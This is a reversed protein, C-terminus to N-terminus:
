PAQRGASPLPYYGDKAYVKVGPRNVRVEINRYTSSPVPRTAYGLTYQNRADETIRSYAEEIAQQSLETFVEGGTASAYKPLIDGYGLGPIHLKQLTGYGPIAAGGVAVAYVAIENSLLVKMVDEYSAFSGSERGESIVFIVKRRARDRKALSQGAALLADNLVRSEEKSPPANVVPQQGPDAAKGNITPVPTHMPGSTVPVGGARGKERRLRRLTKTLQESFAATFNQAEHVTNDYTFIAVEDFQAFAGGLSSLTKNIKQVTGDSMGLDIVVAASLPFPDSTFLKLEQPAGNELVTFDKPLLGEVLRGSEDKVTVPVLVFNVNKTLTFLDDRTDGPAVNRPRPGQVAAPVPTPPERDSPPPPPPATRPIPAPQVPRTASPAEPVNQPKPADPLEQQALTSAALCGVVLFRRALGGFISRAVRM